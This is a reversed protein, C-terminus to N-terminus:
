RGFGYLRPRTEMLWMPFNRRGTKASAEQYVASRDTGAAVVRRDVVAVWQDPYQETLEEIHDSIWDSDDAWAKPTPSGWAIDDQAMLTQDVAAM